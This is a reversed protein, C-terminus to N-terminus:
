GCCNSANALVPAACVVFNAAVGSSSDRHACTFKAFIRNSLDGIVNGVGTRGRHRVTGIETRTRVEDGIMNRDAQASIASPRTYEVVRGSVALPAIDHDFEHLNVAFFWRYETIQVGVASRSKMM